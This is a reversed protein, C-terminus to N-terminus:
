PAFHRLRESIADRVERLKWFKRPEFKYPTLLFRGRRLIEMMIFSIIIEVDHALPHSSFELYSSGLGPLGSYIFSKDTSFSAVTSSSSTSTFSTSSALLSPERLISNNTKRSSFSKLSRPIPIANQHFIGRTTHSDYDILALSKSTAVWIYETEFRTPIALIKPMFRITSTGFLSTLGGIRQDGITIDPHRGNWILSAVLQGSSDKISTRRCKPPSPNSGDWSSPDMGVEVDGEVTVITYAREGSVVDVLATNLM